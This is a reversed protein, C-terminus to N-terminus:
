CNLRRWTPAASFTGGVVTTLYRLRAARAFGRYTQGQTLLTADFTTHGRRIHASLIWLISVVGTM